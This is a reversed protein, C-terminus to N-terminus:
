VPRHRFLSDFAPHPFNPGKGLMQGGGKKKPPFPRCELFFGGSLLPAAQGLLALRPAESARTISLRNRQFWRLNAGALHNGGPGPRPIWAKELSLGSAFLRPPHGGAGGQNLARESSARENQRQTGCQEPRYAIVTGM